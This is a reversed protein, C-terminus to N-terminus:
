ETMSGTALWALLAALVGAVLKGAIVAGIYEPAIGATFGLHDGFAASASVIWAANVIIGRKKMGKMAPYVPVPNALGFVLSSVSTADLGAKTGIVQLPKKLVRTLISLIPFTGVLVVGIQAVLTLADMIPTMGPIIAKGTMYEFAACGMGVYALATIFKGLIMCIRIMASSAFKLALALVISLVLVPLTNSILMSTDFGAIMGGAFSGVPITIIGFLLGNVYYEHDEKNVISLGVPFHFVLIGGLMSSVILGSYLGAQPDEALGTALSYGGMDNAILSGFMAPDAGIAKLAPAVVPGLFEAIVPTLCVMGTMGLALPGMAHFGEDFKEGLGFKNGAIKDAAGMLAGIAM